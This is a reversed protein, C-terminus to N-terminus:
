TRAIGLADLDVASRPWAAVAPRARALSAFPPPLGFSRALERWRAFVILTLVALGVVILIVGIEGVSPLLVSTSGAVAQTPESFGDPDIAAAAAHPAGAADALREDTVLSASGMLTGDAMVHVKGSGSASAAIPAICVAHFLPAFGILLGAIVWVTVARTRVPVGMSVAHM